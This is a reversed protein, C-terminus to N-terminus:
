AWARQGSDPALAEDVALADGGMLARLADLEAETRAMTKAYVRLTFAPDSHGLHAMIRRPHWGKVCLLSACTHRLGHPTLTVPVLEEADEELRTNAREVAKALLRRRVNTAGDKAGTSTGFVLADRGLDRRAILEALDDRLPPLIEVNRAANETKGDRVRLVGAALDVDRRRLTLAEDIRLGGYLLTALLARGHGRRGRGKGDIEGAADLLAVIQPATELHSTRRGTGQVRFGAVPDRDVVRHRIAAKFIAELTSLCKNTSTPGLGGERLPLSRKTVAFREIEAEDIEDLAM